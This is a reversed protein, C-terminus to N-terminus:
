GLGFFRAYVVESVVLAICEGAIARSLSLCSSILLCAPSEVSLIASHFGTSHFSGSAVESGL